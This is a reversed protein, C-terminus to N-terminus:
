DEVSSGECRDCVDEYNGKGSGNCKRCGRAYVEFIKKMFAEMKLNNKNDKRFIM